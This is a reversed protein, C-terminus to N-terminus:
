RRGFPSRNLLHGADVALIQGTIYKAEDSALFVIANSIDRPEVATVPMLPLRGFAREADARTPAALDPRFVRYMPESHLMDTNVNTPIVANVRISHPALVMALDKVVELMLRKATGYAVGGSGQTDTGGTSVAASSSIAVISAGAELVGLTASMTNTVGALDVDLVDTFATPPLEPGLPCVAANAVVVELHGFSAMATEVVGQMEALQRVDAEFALIRRDRAEVLRVTEALDEPRAMPYNVTEIQRCIDVAVIDAGEEALCVAHSRGQGRAAGTILAVRGDLRGV